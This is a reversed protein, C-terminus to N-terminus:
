TQWLKQTRKENSEPRAESHIATGRLFQGPEEHSTRTKKHGFLASGAEGAISLVYELPTGGSEGRLFQGPEGSLTPNETPDPCNRTYQSGSGFPAEMQIPAPTDIGASWTAEQAAASGSALWEGPAMGYLSKFMAEGLDWAEATYQFHPYVEPRARFESMDPRPGRVMYVPEAIPLFMAQPALRAVVVARELPGRETLAAAAEVAKQGESKKWALAKQNWNKVPVYEARGTEPDFRCRIKECRERLGKRFAKLGALPEVNRCKRTRRVFRMFEIDPLEDLEDCKVLYKVAERPQRLRGHDIEVTHFHANAAKLVEKWESPTLFRSMEVICHTHPHWTQRGLADVCRIRKGETDLIYPREFVRKKKNWRKKHAKKVPSGVESSRLIIRVGCRKAVPHANWKSVRRKQKAWRKKLDISLCRPGDHICWHRYFVGREKSRKEMYAIAEKLPDARKQQAIYPISNNRRFPDIREVIGSHLGVMLMEDGEHYGGMRLRELRDAVKRSMLVTQAARKRRDFFDPLASVHGVRGLEDWFAGERTEDERRAWAM